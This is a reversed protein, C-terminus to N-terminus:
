GNAADYTARAADVEPMHEEAWDKLHRLVELLSMGLPTLEYDIRV